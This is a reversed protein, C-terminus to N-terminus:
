KNLKRYETGMQILINERYLPDVCRDLDEQFIMFAEAENATSRRLLTNALRISCVSRAGGLGDDYEQKQLRAVEERFHAIAAEEIRGSQLWTTWFNSRRIEDAAKGKLFEGYGIYASILKTEAQVEEKFTQMMDM